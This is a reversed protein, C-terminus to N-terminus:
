RVIIETVGDGELDYLDLTSLRRIPSRWALTFGFGNWEWVAVHRAPGHRGTAYDGELAILEAEGDGDVDGAAIQLIPVALASGAWLERRSSPDILIIHSSDGQDDQNDAIPSPADSWRMIPWDEWPRWVLLACESQGDRNLDTRLSARVQWSAPLGKLFCSPHDIPQVDPLDVTLLIFGGNQHTYVLWPDADSVGATVGATLAILIM